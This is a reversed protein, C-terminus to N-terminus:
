ILVEEEQALDGVGGRKVEDSAAVLISRRAVARRLPLFGRSRGRPSLALHASGIRGPQVSGNYICGSQV